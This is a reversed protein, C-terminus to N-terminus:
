QVLSIELKTGCNKISKYHTKWRNSSAGFTETVKKLAGM